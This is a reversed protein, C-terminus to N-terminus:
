FFWRVYWHMRKHQSNGSNLRGLSEVFIKHSFFLFFVLSFIFENFNEFTWGFMAECIFQFLMNPPLKQSFEAFERVQSQMRQSYFPLKHCRCAKTTREHHLWQIANQQRMITESLNSTLKSDCFIAGSLLISLSWTMNWLRCLHEHHLRNKNETIKCRSSVAGFRLQM